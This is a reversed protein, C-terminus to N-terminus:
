APNSSSPTENKADRDEATSTLGKKLIAQPLATILVDLFDAASTERDGGPKAPIERVRM